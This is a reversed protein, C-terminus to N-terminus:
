WGTTSSCTLNFTGASTWQDNQYKEVVATITTPEDASHYFRFTLGDNGLTNLTYYEDSNNSGVLEHDSYSGNKYSVREGCWAAQIIGQRKNSTNILPM